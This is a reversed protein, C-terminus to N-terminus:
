QHLLCLLSPLFVFAWTSLTTMRLLVTAFIYIQPKLNWSSFSLEPYLNQHLNYYLDHFSLRLLCDQDTKYKFVQFYKSNLFIKSLFLYSFVKLLHFNHNKPFKQYKVIDKSKNTSFTIKCNLDWVGVLFM